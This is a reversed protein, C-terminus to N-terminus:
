QITKSVVNSVASETGASTYDNITFYWTGSGLGSVVYTTLGPNAVQVSQNLNGASQGYYIHYGALNTLASGDTNQTPAIWTLTASGDASQTVTISFPALQASSTGDSVAITINADTGADSAAPTGSLTGTQTNFAAWGPLNQVSFTLTNHNPDAATPTFSYATGANATTAPTGSITPPPNSAASV